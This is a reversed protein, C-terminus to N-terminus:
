PNIIRARRVLSFHCIRIRRCVTRSPPSISVLYTIENIALSARIDCAERGASERTNAKTSRRSSRGSRVFFLSYFPASFKSCIGDFLGHVHRSDRARNGCKWRAVMVPVSALKARRCVNSRGRSGGNLIPTGRFSCSLSFAPSAALPSSPPDFSLTLPLVFSPPLLSLLSSVPPMMRGESGLRVGRTAEKRKVRKCM